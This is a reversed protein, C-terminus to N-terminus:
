HAFVENCRVLGARFDRYMPRWALRECTSAPVCRRAGGGRTAAGADFVPAPAGALAALARYYTRRTVPTGDAGLEITAADELAMRVLLAAADDVHLLNLWGDPDGAVAAGQRLGALGIVRGPGYLGAYRLVQHANGAALWSREIAALRQERPSQPRCPTEAAVIGGGQEGYVGTSSTLIARAPAVAGLTAVMGQLPQLEGREDACASPPLLCLVRLPPPLAACCAQLFAADAYDGVCVRTAGAATLAAARAPDRTIVRVQAGAAGLLTLVRQGVYGCGILLWSGETPAVM